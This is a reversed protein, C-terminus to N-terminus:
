YMYKLDEHTMTSGYQTLINLQQDFEAPIGSEGSESLCFRAFAPASEKNSVRETLRAGKGSTAQQIASYSNLPNHPKYVKLVGEASGTVKRVLLTESPISYRVTVAYPTEPSNGEPFHVLCLSKGHNGQRHYTNDAGQTEQWASNPGAQASSGLLSGGLMSVVVATKLLSKFM